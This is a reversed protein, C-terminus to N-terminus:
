DRVAPQPGGPVDGAAGVRRVLALVVGAAGAVHDGRAEPATGRTAASVTGRTAARVTGRLGREAVREGLTGPEGVAGARGLHHERTRLHGGDPQRLLGG